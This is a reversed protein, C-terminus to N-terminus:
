LTAMHYPIVPYGYPIVPYGYPLVPYGYPIVPYGHLRRGKGKWEGAGVLKPIGLWM